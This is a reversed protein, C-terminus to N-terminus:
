RCHVPTGQQRLVKIAREFELTEELARKANNKHHAVDILGGEVMLFFGNPNKQLRNIAARVSSFSPVHSPRSKRAPNSGLLKSMGSIREKYTPKYGCKCTKIQRLFWPWYEISMSGPKTKKVVVSVVM